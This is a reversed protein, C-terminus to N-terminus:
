NPQMGSTAQGLAGRRSRRRILVVPVGTLAIASLAAGAKAATPVALQEYDDPIEPNFLSEDFGVDFEWVDNIETLRMKRYGTVLCPSIQGEGEVQIPLRRNPDAWMRVTLSDVSFFFNFITSNLGLGGLIRDPLDSIEFGVAEIGQIQKPGIKRYDGSAWLGEFLSEPTVQQARDRYNPSIEMRYYKKVTPFMVTAMGSPLHYTVYILLEGKANYTRDAYGHHISFSKEVSLAYTPTEDDGFFCNRMGTVRATEQEEFAKQVDALAISEPVIGNGGPFLFSLVVLLVAAVSAYKTYRSTMICRWIQALQIRQNATAPRFGAAACKAEEPFKEAWREFNFEAPERQLHRALMEDVQNDSNKRKM